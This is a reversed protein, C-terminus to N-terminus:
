KLLQYYSSNSIIVQTEVTVLLKTEANPREQNPQKGM